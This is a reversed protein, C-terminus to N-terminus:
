KTPTFNGDILRQARDPVPQMSHNNLCSSM